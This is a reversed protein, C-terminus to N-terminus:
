KSSSSTARNKSLYSPPIACDSCIVTMKKTLPDRVYKHLYPRLTKKCKICKKDQDILAQNRESPHIKINRLPRSKLAKLYATPRYPDEMRLRPITGKFINKTHHIWKKQM